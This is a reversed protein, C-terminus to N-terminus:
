NVLKNDKINTIKLDEPAFNSSASTKILKLEKITFIVAITAAILLIIALLTPITSKRM